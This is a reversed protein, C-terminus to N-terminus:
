ISLLSPPMKVGKKELNMFLLTYYSTFTTSIDYLILNSSLVHYTCLKNIMNIKLMSMADDRSKYLYTKFIMKYYMQGFILGALLLFTGRSECYLVWFWIPIPRCWPPPCKRWTSKSNMPASKGVFIVM